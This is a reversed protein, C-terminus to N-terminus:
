GEDHYYDLEAKLATNALVLERVENELEAIRTIFRDNEEHFYGVALNMTELEADVDSALYFAAGDECAPKMYDGDHPKLYHYTYKQM